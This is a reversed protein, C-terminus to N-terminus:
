RANFYLHDALALVLFIAPFGAFVVGIDLRTPHNPRRFAVALIPLWGLPLSMACLRYDNFIYGGLILGLAQLVVTCLCGTKMSWALNNFDRYM